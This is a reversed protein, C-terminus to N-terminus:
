NEGMRHAAGQSFSRREPNRVAMVNGRTGIDQYMTRHSGDTVSTPIGRADYTTLSFNTSTPVCVIDDVYVINNPNSKPTGTGIRIRLYDDNTDFLSGNTLQYASLFFSWRQWVQKKALAGDAIGGSLSDVRTNNARWREVIMEPTGATESYIWASINMGYLLTRVDKLHLNIAPGFNDTVKLSYRGTHAQVSSFATGTSTWRGQFDLGAIGANGNEGLLLACNALKANQVTGALDGRLGEYFASAYSEGLPGSLTNRVIKSEIVEFAHGTDRLTIRSRPLWGENLQFSPPTGARLANDDLAQDQERWLSDERFTYGDFVAKSSSVVSTTRYPTTPAWNKLSDTNPQSSLRYQISQKPFGLPDFITQSLLIKDPRNNHLVFRPAGNTDNYNFFYTTDSMHSKNRAFAHFYAVTPRAIYMPLPWSPAHYPAMDSNSSQIADGNSAMVVSAFEVGNLSASKGILPSAPCDIHFSTRAAGLFGTSDVQKVEAVEFQPLLLSSNFEARAGSPHYTFQTRVKNRSLDQLGSLTAVESVVFQNVPTGFVGGDYQYHRYRIKRPSSTTDLVVYTGIRGANSFVSQSQKLSKWGTGTSIPNESSGLIFNTTSEPHFRVAYNTVTCPMADPTTSCSGSVNDAYTGILMNDSPSFSMNFLNLSGIVINASQNAFYPVHNFVQYLYSEYKGTTTNFTPRLGISNAYDYFEVSFASPSTRVQLYKAPDIGTLVTASSYFSMQGNVIAKQYLKITSGMGPDALIFYDQSPFLQVYGNGTMPFNMVSFLSDGDFYIGNVYVNTGNKTVLLFYDSSSTLSLINNNMDMQNPLAMQSGSPTLNTSLKKSIDRFNLGTSDLAFVTLVDPVTDAVVFWNSQAEILLGSRTWEMCYPSSTDRIAEGYFAKNKFDCNATNRNLTVWGGPKRVAVILQSSTLGIIQVLIYNPAPFVKIPLAGFSSGTWNPDGGFPSQQAWRVGDFGYMLVTGMTESVLLVYDGMPMFKWKDIPTWPDGLEFRATVTGPPSETSDQVRADFFNGLNRKIEVYMKHEFPIGGTSDGPLVDSDGDKVVTYCFREDCTNEVSWQKLKVSDSPLIIEAGNKARRLTYVNTDLAGGTGTFDALAYKLTDVRSSPFVVKSLTNFKTSDYAFRWGSDRQFVTSNPKGYFVRISDLLMKAASSMDFKFYHTLANEKFCKLSDLRRTEFLKQKDRAEYTDYGSYQSGSKPTTKFEYREVELGNEVWKINRVYGERVYSKGTGASDMFREYEFTLVNKPARNPISDYFSRLDWRYIFRKAAASAYPSAKIVGKNYLVYRQANSDQGFIMKKGDPMTFVWRTFQRAYEGSASAATDFAVKINPNSSVFYRTGTSDTLIQGGGYPGLNCFIADDIFAYTGKHNTAVFPMSLNFGMGVWSTPARELDPEFQAKANGSYTLVIPFSVTRATVGGLPISYAPQGTFINVNSVVKGVVGGDVASLTQVRSASSGPELLTKLSGSEPIRATSAMLSAVSLLLIGIIRHM